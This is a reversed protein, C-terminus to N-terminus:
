PDTKGWGLLIGNPGKCIKRFEHLYELLPAGDTAVISTAFKAVLKALTTLVLPFNAV